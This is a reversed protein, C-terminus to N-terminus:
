GGLRSKSLFERFLAILMGVFGCVFFSISGALMRRPFVPDDKVQITEVSATKRTWGEGLNFKPDMIVDMLLDYRQSSADSAIQSIAAVPTGSERRELERLTSMRQALSLIKEARENLYNAYDQTIKEHEALITRMCAEVVAVARAPSPARAELRILNSRNIVTARVELNSRLQANSECSFGSSSIREVLEFPTELEPGQITLKGVRIIVGAEYREPLLACIILALFLGALALSSIFLFRRQVCKFIDIYTIEPCVLM